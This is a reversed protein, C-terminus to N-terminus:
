SYTRITNRVQEKWNEKGDLFQLEFIGNVKLIRISLSLIIDGTKLSCSHIEMGEKLGATKVKEVPKVIAGNPSLELVRAMVLQLNEPNMFMFDMGRNGLPLLSHQKRVAPSPKYHLILSELNKMGKELDNQLLLMGNVGLIYAKHLDEQPFESNLMLIFPATERSYLERLFNVALKWHRPFDVENFIVTDPRIEKFNDMAKLPNTYHIVSYGLPTFYRFFHGAEQEDQSILLLKM